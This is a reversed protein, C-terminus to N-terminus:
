MYSFRLVAEFGVLVAHPLPEVVGPLLHGVQVVVDVFSLFVVTPLYEM